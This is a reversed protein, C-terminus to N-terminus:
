PFCVGNGLYPVISDASLLKSLAATGFRPHVLLANDTNPGLPLFGPTATVSANGQALTRKFFVLAVRDAWYPDSQWMEHFHGIRTMVLSRALPMGETTQQYAFTTDAFVQDDSLTHLTLTPIPIGAIAAVGDLLAYFSAVTGEPDLTFDGLGTGPM